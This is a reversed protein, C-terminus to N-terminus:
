AFMLRRGKPEPIPRGLLEATEIWLQIVEQTMALAAEPTHGDAMCGPLEPVEVLYTNDVDSWWMIIQYKYM